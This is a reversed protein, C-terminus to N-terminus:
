SPPLSGPPGYRSSPGVSTPPPPSSGTRGDATPTGVPPQDRLERHFFAQLLIPLAIAIVGTLFTLRNPLNNPDNLCQYCFFATLFAAAIVVAVGGILVLEENQNQFLPRNPFRRRGTRYINVGAWSNLMLGSIFALISISWRFQDLHKVIFAAINVVILGVPTVAGLVPITWRKLFPVLGRPRPALPRPRRRLLSM